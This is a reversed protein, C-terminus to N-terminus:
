PSQSHVIRETSDTNVLGNADYYRIKTLAFMAVRNAAYGIESQTVSTQPDYGELNQITTTASAVQLNQAQGFQGWTTSNGNIISFALNGNAVEMVITYTIIENDTQLRANNAHTKWSLQDENKCLQLQMGGAQYDPATSHNIELIGHLDDLLNTPSLVNIIQPADNGADPDNIQLVWDEEIRIITQPDQAMLDSTGLLTLGVLPALVLALRYFWPMQNPVSHQAGISCIQM